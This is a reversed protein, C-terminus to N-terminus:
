PTVTLSVPASHTVAGSVATITITYTGAPTGPSGTGGGGGQLGAGCSLFLMVFSLTATAAVSRRLRPRTRAFWFLGAIPFVLMFTSLITKARIPATTALTLQV